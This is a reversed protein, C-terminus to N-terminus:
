AGIVPPEAVHTRTPSVACQERVAELEARIADPAGSGSGPARAQPPIPKAPTPRWGQAKLITMLGAAFPEPDSYDAGARMEDDREQIHRTLITVADATERDADTM